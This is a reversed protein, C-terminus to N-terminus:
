EKYLSGYTYCIYYYIINIIKDGSQTCIKVFYGDSYKEKVFETDVFARAEELTIFTKISEGSAEVRNYGDEGTNGYSVRYTKDNVEWDQATIDDVSFQDVAWGSKEMIVKDFYYYQHSGTRHIICGKYLEKLATEFNQKTKM